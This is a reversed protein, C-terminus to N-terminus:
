LTYCFTLIAVVTFLISAINSSATSSDTTNFGMNRGHSIDEELSDYFEYDDEEPRPIETRLFWEYSKDMSDADRDIVDGNNTQSGSQAESSHVTDDIVIRLPSSPTPTITVLTPTITVPTPFTSPTTPTTTKRHKGRRRPKSRTTTSRDTNTYDKVGLFEATDEHEVWFSRTPTTTQVTTQTPVPTHIIRRSPEEDPHRMIEPPMTVNIHDFTFEETFMGCEENNFFWKHFLTQLVGDEQLHLFATDLDESLTNGKKLAFGFNTISLFQDLSILDCPRKSSIYNAQTSEMILAFDGERVRAVGLAVTPIINPSTRKGGSHRHRTTLSIREWIQQYLSLKSRGLIKEARSGKIVGIQYSTQNLLDEM